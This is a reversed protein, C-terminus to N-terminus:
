VSIMLPVDGHWVPQAPLTSSQLFRGAAHLGPIRETSVIEGDAIALRLLGERAAVWLEAGVAVVDRVGDIAVRFRLSGSANCVAVGASDAVVLDGQPGFFRVVKRESGVVQPAVEPFCIADRPTADGSAAACPPFSM